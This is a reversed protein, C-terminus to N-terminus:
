AVEQNIKANVKADVTDLLVRCAGRVITRVTGLALHEVGPKGDPYSAPVFKGLRAEVELWMLLEKGALEIEM